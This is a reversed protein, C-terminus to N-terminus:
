GPGSGNRGGRPHTYSLARGRNPARGSAGVPPGGANPPPPAPEDFKRAVNVLFRMMEPHDTMGTDLLAKDFAPRREPAVFLQMMRIAAAKNTQFGAGGIEPDAMIQNRWERRMEGFAAHQQALTHDALAQMAGTHLDMLSQAHEPTIKLERALTTFKELPEPPLEFGDPVKFEYKIEEVPAPEAEAPKAPEAPKDEPKAPEAASL